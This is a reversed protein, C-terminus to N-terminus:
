EVRCFLEDWQKHTQRDDRRSGPFENELVILNELEAVDMMRWGPLPKKSTGGTQFVLLRIRENAIGYDHPEAVRPAGHYTFQILRRHAIAFRILEDSTSVAPRRNGFLGPIVKGM